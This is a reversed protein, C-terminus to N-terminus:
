STAEKKAAKNLAATVPGAAREALAKRADRAFHIYKQTTSMQRHGLQEAIQAAEMGSMAMHSGLSHRLGHLGIGPPLGAAARIKQRWPKSLNLAGEGKAPRFVFDHPEGGPQQAIILQAAEPLAIIRPKGTRKGTKHRAPPLTITGTDLDIHQWQLGAIEGRRAGTMALVRIADAVPGRLAKTRQLEDLTLFLQEYQEPTALILSREGDSGSVVGDAPNDKALREEIAWALVARLLLIAKRATGEGGTVRARGYKGTKVDAATKGDRISRFAARVHERTLKHAYHKGLTPVLHRNIRGKDISRTSAAKDAFKESELYKELLQQMTLAERLQEREALPDLGDEVARRYQKAKERARSVNLTTSVRGITIRRSRGEPTRYQFCYSKVGSPLVLLGFGKIESDWLIHPKDAPTAAAVSTKTLNM